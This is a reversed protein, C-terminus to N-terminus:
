FLRVYTSPFFSVATQVFLSFFTANTDSTENLQLTKHTEFHSSIEARAVRFFFIFQLVIVKLATKQKEVDREVLHQKKRGDLKFM